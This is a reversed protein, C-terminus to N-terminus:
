ASSPMRSESVHSSNLRTSKRDTAIWRLIELQQAYTNFIFGTYHQGHMTLVLAAKRMWDPVDARSEYSPLNFARELHTWHLAAADDLSAARGIRWRPVTVRTDNRWADHEHILELRVAKEGPQFDFRKPRVRTDLSSAYFWDTPTAEVAAFPTSMGPVPSGGHLDGAGFTYGALTEGDQNANQPPPNGALSIRGRPVDRVVTTVTKVPRPMEVTVEWEITTGSRRFAATLTGPSREQGGAWVFGDCTVAMADGTVTAKMGRVDPAYTNEDTFVIFGFRHGGFAVSPEPFDFSFRMRGGRAPIFVESTNMLPSIEGDALATAAGADAPLASAGAANVIVSGASAAGVTKIWDRRNLQDTM